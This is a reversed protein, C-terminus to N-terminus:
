SSLAALSVIKAASAEVMTKEVTIKPLTVKQYFKSFLLTLIGQEVHLLARFKMKPCKCGRYFTM